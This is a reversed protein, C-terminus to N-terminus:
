DQAFKCRESYLYLNHASLHQLINHIVTWYEKPTATYILINNLYVTVKGATVLNTFITNMLTQFTTSFNTLEFLM